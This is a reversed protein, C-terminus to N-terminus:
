ETQKLADIAKGVRETLEQIKGEPLIPPGFRVVWYRGRRTLGVPLVPAKGKLALLGVGNHLSTGGRTGEPFIGLTGGAQLIRLATRIAAVDNGERDIPFSGGTRIFWSSIPNKFLQKKAMYQVRRWRPLALAIIFPDANTFHNGAVILPGSKPIYERGEVRVGNLKAPLTMTHMVLAYVLPNVPQPNKPADATKPSETNTM